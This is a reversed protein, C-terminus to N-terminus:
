NAFYKVLSGRFYDISLRLFMSTLGFSRSGDVLLKLFGGSVWLNKITLFAFLAVDDNVNRTCGETVTVVIFVENLYMM